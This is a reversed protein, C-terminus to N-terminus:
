IRVTAWSKVPLSPSDRAITLPFAVRNNHSGSILLGCNSHLHWRWLRKHAPHPTPKPPPPSSPRNHRHCIATANASLQRIQPLYVLQITTSSDKRFLLYISPKSVKEARKGSGGRGGGGVLARKRCGRIRAISLSGCRYCGFRSIGSIADVRLLASQYTNPSRRVATQCHDTTHVCTYM